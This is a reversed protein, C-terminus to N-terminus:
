IMGALKKALRLVDRGDVSGDENVDAARLDITVDQGALYKLLRLLDRGDVTGDRNTDGLLYGSDSIPEATFVAQYTAEGTVPELEPTWHSFTYTYVGDSAKVPDDHEPM